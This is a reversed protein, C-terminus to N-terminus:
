LFSISTVVNKGFGSPLDIEEGIPHCRSNPCKRAAKRYGKLIEWLSEL